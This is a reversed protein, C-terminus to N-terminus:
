KPLLVHLFHKLGYKSASRSSPLHVGHAYSYDPASEMIALDNRFRDRLEPMESLILGVVAHDRLKSRINALFSLILDYQADADKRKVLSGGQDVAESQLGFPLDGAVLTITDDKVLNDWNHAMNHQDTKCHRHGYCDGRHLTYSLHALHEPSEEELSIINSEHERLAAFSTLRMNQKTTYVAEASVDTGMIYQIRKREFIAATYPITGGGCCPDLLCHEQHPKFHHNFTKLLDILTAHAKRPAMHPEYPVRRFVGKGPALASYANRDLPWEAEGPLSNWM